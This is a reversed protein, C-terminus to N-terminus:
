YFPFLIKKLMEILDIGNEISNPESVIFALPYFYLCSIVSQPIPVACFRQIRRIPYYSRATFICQYPYYLLFLHAHKPLVDNLIFSRMENDPLLNAFETMALIHGLVAKILDSLAKKSFNLKFESNKIKSVVQELILDGSAGLKNNCDKCINDFHIGCPSKKTFGISRDKENITDFQFYEYTKQSNGCCKPPAHDVSPFAKKGCISCIITKKNDNM